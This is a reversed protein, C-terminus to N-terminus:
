TNHEYKVELDKCSGPTDPVLSGVFETVITEFLGHGRFSSSIKSHCSFLARNVHRHISPEVYYSSVCDEIACM